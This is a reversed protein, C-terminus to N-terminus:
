EILQSHLEFSGLFATISYSDSGSVLVCDHHCVPALFHLVGKGIEGRSAAKLRHRDSENGRQWTRDESL